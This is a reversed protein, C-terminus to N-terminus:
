QWSMSDPLVTKGSLAPKTDVLGWRRSLPWFINLARGIMNKRPIFGWNRSDLSNSTNDGLAFYMNEPVVLELGPALLESAIHGQYGGEMSYIRKFKDSFATAPKFEDAGKPKIYLIRDVIKLTDGPLGALRKIYYYGGLPQTPSKINETNFVIVDGRKPPLYHISVRDVFLHDGTSFWGNAPVDDKRFMRSNRLDLYYALQNITGPLTYVTNGIQIKTSDFLGLEKIPQYAQFEGDEEIKLYAPRVALYPIKLLNAMASNHEAFGKKDVYHIGYLTPQMSSTPIKFPQLYLARIGFAVAFAVALVDLVNRLKRKNGHLGSLANLKSSSGTIFSDIAATNKSRKMESAENLIAKLADKKEESLIDDDSVLRHKAAIRIDKIEKRLKRLKFYSLM